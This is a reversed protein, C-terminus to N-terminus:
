LALADVPMRCPHGHLLHGWSIMLCTCALDLMDVKMELEAARCHQSQQGRTPSHPMDSMGINLRSCPCVQSAFGALHLESGNM